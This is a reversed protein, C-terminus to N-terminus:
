LFRVNRTSGKKEEKSDSKFVDFCYRLSFEHSGNGESSSFSSLGLDYSYNLRFGKWIQFGLNLIVAEQLRYGVGASVIDKYDTSLNIDLQYSALDTQLLLNPKLLFSSNLSFNYGGSFYYHRRQPFEIDQLDSSFELVNLSSASIYHKDGTWAIGFGFSPAFGNGTSYPINPDQGLRSPTIWDTNRLSTNMFGMSLGFVLNSRELQLAYAYDLMVMTNSFNGYEDFLLQLGGGMKNNYFPMKYDALLSSPAGDFGTWQSRYAIGACLQDGVAAFAPNYFMKNNYFQSFQTLQQASVIPCLLTTLAIILVYNKM